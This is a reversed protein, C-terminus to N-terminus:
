DHIKIKVCSDFPKGDIVFSFTQHNKHKWDYQVQVTVGTDLTITWWNIQREREPNTIEISIVTGNTSGLEEVLNGRGVCSGAGIDKVTHKGNLEIRKGVLASRMADLVDRQLVHPECRGDATLPRCLADFTSLFSLASVFRAM